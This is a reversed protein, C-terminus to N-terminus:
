LACRAFVPDCKIVHVKGSIVEIEGINQKNMNPFIVEVRYVGPDLKGAPYPRGNKTLTLREVEGKVVVKGMPLPDEKPKDVKKNPQKNEKSQDGKELTIDGWGREAIKEQEKASDGEEEQEQEPEQNPKQEQKNKKNNSKSSSRKKRKPESSKIETENEVDQNQQVKDPDVDTDAGVMEIEAAPEEPLQEVEIQPKNVQKTVVSSVIPEEIPKDRFLYESVVVLFLIAILGILVRLNQGQSKDIDIGTYWDDYRETTDGYIQQTTESQFFEEETQEDLLKSQLDDSDFMVESEHTEDPEDLFDTVAIGDELDLRMTVESASYHNKTFNIEQDKWQERDLVILGEDSDESDDDYMDVETQAVVVTVENEAGLDVEISSFSDDLSSGFIESLDDFDDQYFVNSMKNLGLFKRRREKRSKTRKVPQIEKINESEEIIEEIQLDVESVEDVESVQGIKEEPAGSKRLHPYNEMLWSQLIEAPNPLDWKRMLREMSSRKAPDFSVLHLVEKILAKPIKNKRMERQLMKLQRAHAEALFEAPPPPEGLLMHTLVTGMSYIDGVSSAGNEPSVYRVNSTRMPTKDSSKRGFGDLWVEGNTALWIAAPHLDGHVVGVHSANSLISVIQQGIAMVVTYPLQHQDLVVSLPVGNRWDSVWFPVSNILHIGFSPVSGVILRTTLLNHRRRIDEIMVDSHNQLPILRVARGNVDEGSYLPGAWGIGIRERLSYM